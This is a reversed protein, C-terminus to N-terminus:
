SGSFGVKGLGFVVPFGNNFGDFLTGSLSFSFVFFPGDFIVFEGNINGGNFFTDSENLM